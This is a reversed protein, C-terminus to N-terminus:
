HICIHIAFHCTGTHRKSNSRISRAVPWDAPRKTVERATHRLCNRVFQRLAWRRLWSKQQPAGPRHWGTSAVRGIGGLRADTTYVNSAIAAAPSRHASWCDTSDHTSGLAFFIAVFIPSIINPPSIKLTTMRFYM